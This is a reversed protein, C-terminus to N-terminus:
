VHAWNRGIVILRIAATSVGYERALQAPTTGAAARSKIERVQAETLKSLNSAEGRPRKEPHLRSGSRDGRAVRDPRTKSGNRDGSAMLGMRAAHQANEKHTVYELNEARNNTKVGDIHNVQLGEPRPGLFAAAVLAHVQLVKQRGKVRLGVTFYGRDQLSSRLYRPPPPGNRVHSVRRVRGLSSVEHSHEYGPVARWEEEHQHTTNEEADM